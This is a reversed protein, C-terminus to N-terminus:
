IAFIRIEKQITSNGRDVESAVPGIHHDLVGVDCRSIAVQWVTRSKALLSIHMVESYHGIEDYMKM